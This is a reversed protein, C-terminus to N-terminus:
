PLFTMAASMFLNKIIKEDLSLYRCIWRLWWLNLKWRRSGDHWACACYNKGDGIEWCPTKGVQKREGREKGGIERWSPWGGGNLQGNEWYRFSKKTDSIAQISETPM